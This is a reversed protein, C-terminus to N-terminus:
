GEAACELVERVFGLNRRDADEDARKLAGDRIEETFDRVGAGFPLCGAENLKAMAREVQENSISM